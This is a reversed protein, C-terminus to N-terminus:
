TVDAGITFVPTLLMVILPNCIDFAEPGQIVNTLQELMVIWFQLNPGDEPIATSKFL